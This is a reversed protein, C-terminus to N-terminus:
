AVHLLGLEQVLVPMAEDFELGLAELQPIWYDRHVQRWIAPHRAAPGELVLHEPGIQDFPVLECREYRVLCRPTGDYATLIALAGAEPLRGERELLQPLSFTGRKRGTIILELLQECLAQRNGIRRVAYGAEPLAAGLRARCAQWFIDCQTVAFGAHISARKRGTGASAVNSFFLSVAGFM